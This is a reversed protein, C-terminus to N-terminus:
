SPLEFGLAPKRSSSRRRGRPKMGFQVLLHSRPGLVSKIFNRLSIAADASGDFDAKVRRTAEKAQARKMDQVVQSAQAAACAKELAERFPAIGGLDAELLNVANLLSAWQKLMAKRSKKMM